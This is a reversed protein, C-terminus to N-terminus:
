LASNVKTDVLQPDPTLVTDVNNLEKTNHMNKLADAVRQVDQGDRQMQARIEELMTNGYVRLVSVPCYYNNGYHNLLEFKM